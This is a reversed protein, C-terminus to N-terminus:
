NTQLFRQIMQLVRQPSYPKTLIDDFKVESFDNFFMQSNHATLAIIPPTSRPPMFNNRIYLVTDLGNMIPMEIDMLVLDIQTKAFIDIAQKGNEALLCQM